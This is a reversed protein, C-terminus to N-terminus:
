APVEQPKTTSIAPLGEIARVEAVTLFQKDLAIAHAEYRTKTDTRLLADLNFRASQGRPLVDSMALEIERLYNMLTWRIFEGNETEANAYTTSGGEIAVLLLRSPIGFLRAIAAVGFRQSELWQVESPKLNLAEYKLGSGLVATDHSNARQAKWQDKWAQAQAPTLPQDTSLIGSPVEGAAFWESGYAAVDLHGRIGRAACQIPGFGLLEGPLRVLRLHQIDHTTWDHKDAWAFRKTGREDRWPVVDIPNLQELQIVSGDSGRRKRWYANGRTALAGVTTAWFSGGVDDMDPKVALSPTPTLRDTGRWVDLTLQLAATEIIQVARYISDLSMAEVPTVTQLSTRTPPMVGAPTPTPAEARTALGTALAIRRLDMGLVM